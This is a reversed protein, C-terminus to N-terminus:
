LSLYRHGVSASISPKCLCIDIAKLSLYRHGLSVSISPICLCIDINWLSLYRHGLSLYLFGVSIDIVCILSLHKAPATSRWVRLWHLRLKFGKQHLKSAHANENGGRRGLESLQIFSYRDIFLPPFMHTSLRRANSATHSFEKWLLRSPTPFFLDVLLRLTSM